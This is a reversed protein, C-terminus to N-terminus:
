DFPPIVKIKVETKPEPQKFWSRISEQMFGLGAGLPNFVNVELDTKGDTAASALWVMKRAPVEPPKALVRVVMPFKDLRASAGEFVEVDTLLETLVMGPNLTYVGVGSGRTEEALSRTFWRIWVKSSSYANQYPIAKNWGAGLINILKGSRQAMFHKMAARSGYYTGLINTEVVQRFTEPSWDLTAGYPGVVGANNVWIDMRGMTELTYQVLASTQPYDSVDCVFGRIANGYSQLLKLANDVSAQSRSAVVV